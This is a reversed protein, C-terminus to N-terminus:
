VGRPLNLRQGTERGNRDNGDTGEGHLAVFFLCSGGATIVVHGLGVAWNLEQADDTAKKAFFQSSFRM